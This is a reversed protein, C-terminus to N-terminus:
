IVLDIGTKFKSNKKVVKLQGYSPYFEILCTLHTKFLVYRLIGFSDKKKVNPQM